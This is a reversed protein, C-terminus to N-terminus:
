KSADVAENYLSNGKAGVSLFYLLMAGGYPAKKGLIFQNNDFKRVTVDFISKKKNLGDAVGMKLPVKVFGSGISLAFDAASYIVPGYGGPIQDFTQKVHNYSGEENNVHNYLASTGEEINGLGFVIMPGGFFCGAVTGCLTGGSYVSAGGTVTKATNAVVPIVDRTGADFVSDTLSYNFLGKDRQADAWELENSLGVMDAESLYADHYEKTGRELHAWCKIIYCMAKELNAETFDGKQAEAKIAAVESEHAARNYVDVSMANGGAVVAGSTGRGSGVVAGAGAAILAAMADQDVGKIGNKGLADAITPMLAASTGAGLAGSQVNGSSLGIAAGALAHLMVRAAGGEAWAARTAADSKPDTARSQAYDGIKNFIDSSATNAVIGVTTGVPAGGLGAAILGSAIDAMLRKDGGVQWRQAETYAANAALVTGAADPSGTETQTKAKDALAKAEDAKAKGVASIVGSALQASSQILDIREQMAKEDPRDLKQNANATDRNLGVLDNAGEANRVVITGESVASRTYSHDKEKLAIPISGGMSAGSTSSSSVSIGASQSKIESVNKIDSVILRDTSLRNKDASTM